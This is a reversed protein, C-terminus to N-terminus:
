SVHGTTVSMAMNSPCEPNHIISSMILAARQGEETVYAIVVQRQQITRVQFSM